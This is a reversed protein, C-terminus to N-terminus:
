LDGGPDKVPLAIGKGDEVALAFHGDLEDETLAAAAAAVGVGDTGTVIWTPQQGTFTTAAVLGGGPGLTRVTAGRGDLLAIRNGGPDPRAFVGSKAPGYELARAAIDKRVDRWTGVLVRLVEGVSQELNSRALTDIDENQLRREVEDCSRGASGLCVLKIPLKKGQSGSLFPEPFAGVVAPVRAAAQIDHHDWWVRDGPHLRRDVAKESAAIGNVFYSWDARRGDARGNSVGDIEQVSSGLGTRVDFDKRLLELVTGDGAAADKPPQLHTEGFDRSVLITVGSDSSGGCGAVVVAALCALLWTWPSRV